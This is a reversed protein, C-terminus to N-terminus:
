LIFFGSLGLVGSSVMLMPIQIGKAGSREEKKAAEMTWSDVAVSGQKIGDKESGWLVGQVAQLSSHVEGLGGAEMTPLKQDKCFGDPTNCTKGWLVDCGVDTGNTKRCKSAAGAASAGVIKHIKETLSPALYAARSLARIWPGKISRNDFPCQGTAGSECGRIIYDTTTNEFSSSSPRCESNDSCTANIFSALPASWKSDSSNSTVNYMVSLGEILLARDRYGRFWASDKKSCEGASHDETFHIEADDVTWDKKEVLQMEIWEWIKEAWTVFTQDGSYLALRASLLFFNANSFASKGLLDANSPNKEQQLSGPGALLGGRCISEESTWRRALANFVGMTLDIWKQDKPETLGIEVATLVALGWASQGLDGITANDWEPAQALLASAPKSPDFELATSSGSLLLALPISKYIGVM